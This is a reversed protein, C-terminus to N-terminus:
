GGCFTAAAMGGIMILSMVSFLWLVTSGEKDSVMLSRDDM